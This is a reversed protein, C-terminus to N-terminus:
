NGKKWHNVHEAFPFNKEGKPYEKDLYVERIDREAEQVELLLENSSMRLAGGSSVTLQELGDSTAVTVKVKKGLTRVYEEIYMDATQGERTFVLRINHYDQESGAGGKRKYADYVVILHCKKYGQYNCLIDNLRDRAADLNHAALAKLDDWAFIVNYGDVILYEDPAAAPKRPYSTDEPKRLRSAYSKTKQMPASSREYGLDTDTAGTRRKVEGFTRTFIEQLEQEDAYGGGGSRSTRAAERAQLVRAQEELLAQEYAKMDVSGLVRIGDAASAADASFGSDLHMYAEVEYWPVVFGAGHACFVSGTPRDLDAESDYGIEAVIQEQRSPEVPEYGSLELTLRGCGRTYANVESLYGQMQEAPATGTLRTMVGDAATEPPEFSGKMRQIDAMAHGIQETPVDLIFRYYPELLVNQAKKLGQRIARYTAQRFDGGETHKQHARGTLLTIRVDTIPAGTLVGPHEREQIHTLILRQWNRDFVDEKCATAIEIGSGREGPELLLHVEAYHRLPEYHGVGEVPAAITEKYVIHGEAFSVEEHFRQWILNKLVQTQVEGMLQMHIERSRENWIVHLLPDEEELQRLKGLFVFADCTEPLVIRYTMVPALSPPALTSLAGLGDGAATATLGPLACVDGACVQDVAEYKTGSYLRIQNVKEPEEGGTDLVEKVQLRGGTLRVWSLRNGADDRSIKFVRAGFAGDADWPPEPLYQEMGDLLERVGEDRLATGFFCPFIKRGQVHAALTEEDLAGEALFHNLLEEECMAINEMWQADHAASFNQCGDSLERQLEAMLEEQQRDSLDMKNIFLFVPLRYHEFLKWLTRTHSQVGDTASIVLVAADLVSLVREMEGSFDVHGPTDLLTIEREKWTFRAQKSFITIGRAREQEDTDLFADKHDVRGLSRIVGSEYLISESLTTKGADVHALIGISRKKMM